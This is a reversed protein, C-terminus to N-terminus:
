VAVPEAAASVDSAAGSALNWIRRVVVEVVMVFVFADSVALISGSARGDVGFAVLPTLPVASLSKAGRM